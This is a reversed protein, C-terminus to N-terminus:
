GLAARLESSRISGRARDDALVRWADLGLRVENGARLRRIAASTALREDDDFPGLPAAGPDRDVM